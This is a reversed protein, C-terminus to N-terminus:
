TIDKKIYQLYYFNEVLKDLKEDLICSVCEGSQRYDNILKWGSWKPFEKRSIGCYNNNMKVTDKLRESLFDSFEM